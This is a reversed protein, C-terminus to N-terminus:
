PRRHAGTSVSQMSRVLTVLITCHTPKESAQILSRHLRQSPLRGLLALARFRPFPSTSRCARRSILRAYAGTRFGSHTSQRGQMQACSRLKSTVAGINSYPSKLKRARTLCRRDRVMVYLPGCILDTDTRRHFPQPSPVIVPQRCGLWAPTPTRDQFVVCFL